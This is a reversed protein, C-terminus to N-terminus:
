FGQGCFGTVVGRCIRAGRFLHGVQKAHAIQNDFRNDIVGFGLVGLFLILMEIMKQFAALVSGLSGFKQMRGCMLRCASVGIRSHLSADTLSRFGATQKEKKMSNGGMLM